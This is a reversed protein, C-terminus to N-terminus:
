SDRVSGFYAVPTIFLEPQSATAGSLFENRIGITQPHRPLACFPTIRSICLADHSGLMPTQHFLSLELGTPANRLRATVSARQRSPRLSPPAATAAHDRSVSGRLHCCWAESSWPAQAAGDVEAFSRGDKGYTTRLHELGDVSLSVIRFQGVLPTLPSARLLRRMRPVRAAGTMQM